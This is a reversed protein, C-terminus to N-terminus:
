LAKEYIRYTKYHRAGIRDLLRRLLLNDELIWSLEGQEYGRRAGNEFARHVLMVDIGQRRHERVVGMTLVRLRRIRRRTLLFRLWGFPFLRGNMKKLAVNIDPLALLFGVPEDGIEAILALDPDTVPKLSRATFAFQEATMPVFGWNESWARNYVSFAKAIDEQFLDMDISRVTAPCRRRARRGFREIHPPMHGPYDYFYAVLNKAVSYGLGEMWELYQPPNYPMMFVPPSDFGEALFGCEQNTSFNFPGRIRRMGKRALWGEARDMLARAVGPGGGCEFFGFFGTQEGWFENHRHNVHATVRGCVRGEEKRALLYCVDTFQFAPNQDSFFKKREARLHPVYNPDDAYLSDPYAIFELLEDRTTVEQVEASM